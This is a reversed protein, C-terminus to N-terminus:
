QEDELAAVDELNDLLELLELLELLQIIEKDEVSLTQADPSEEQEAVALCPFSLLMALLLWICRSV